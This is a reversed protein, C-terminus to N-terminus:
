TSGLATEAERFYLTGSTGTGIFAVFADDATFDFEKYQDQAIREGVGTNTGTLAQSVLTQRQAPVITISVDPATMVYFTDGWAEFRVKKGKWSAPAAFVQTSATGAVAYGEGRRPPRITVAEESDKSM